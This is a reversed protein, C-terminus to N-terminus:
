FFQGKEKLATIFAEKQRKSIPLKQQSIRVMNGELEDIKTLNVIYSRHIRFFAKLPLNEEIFTMTHSSLLIKQATHIKVYEGYSEFYLVESYHLKIVKHDTKVFLFPKETAESSSDPTASLTKSRMKLDMVKGIAKLFRNFTIPKVLYDLVDLEYGDLAYESYATTLITAPKNKLMRLLDSGTIDDMQIDLLLIDIPTSSLIARAEIANTCTAALQLEPIKEVYKSLLIRAPEEDDVILTQLVM